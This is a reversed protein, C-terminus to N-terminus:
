GKVKVERTGLTLLNVNLPLPKRWSSKTQSLPHGSMSVCLLNCKRPCHKPISAKGRGGGCLGVGMTLPWSHIPSLRRAPILDCSPSLHKPYIPEGTKVLSCKKNPAQQERQQLGHTLSFCCKGTDNDESHHKLHVELSSFKKLFTGERDRECLVLMKSYWSSVLGKFPKLFCLSISWPCGEAWSGQDAAEQWTVLFGKGFNNLAM